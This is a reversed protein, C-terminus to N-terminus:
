SVSDDVFDKYNNVGKVLGAYKAFTEADDITAGSAVKDKVLLVNGRLKEPLEKLFNCGAILRNERLLGVHVDRGYFIVLNPQFACFLDIVM